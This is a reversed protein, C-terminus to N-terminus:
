SLRMPVTLDPDPIGRWMSCCGSFSPAAGRASIDHRRHGTRWRSAPSSCSRESAGASQAAAIEGELGRSVYSHRRSGDPNAADMRVGVPALGTRASHAYSSPLAPAFRRFSSPSSAPRMSGMAADADHVYIDGGPVRAVASRGAVCGARPIGPRREPVPGARGPRAASRALRQRVDSHRRDGDGPPSHELTAPSAGPWSTEAAPTTASSRPGPDSEKSGRAEWLVDPWRAAQRRRAFHELLDSPRHTGPRWPWLTATGATALPGSENEVQVMVVAGDPDADVLHGVLGEFAEADAERLDAGFVSLVPKATAGEYTFAEPGHTRDRGASVTRPRQAGM